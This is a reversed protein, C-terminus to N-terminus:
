LASPAGAYVGYKNRDFITIAGDLIGLFHVPVLIHLNWYTLPQNRFVLAIDPTPHHKVLYNQRGLWVLLAPASQLFM